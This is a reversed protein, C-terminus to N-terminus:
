LQIITGSMKCARFRDLNRYIFCTRLSDVEVEASDLTADNIIVPYSSEAPAARTSAAVAEVHRPCSLTVPRGHLPLQQMKWSSLLGLRRETEGDSM